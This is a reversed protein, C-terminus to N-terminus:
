AILAAAGYNWGIGFAALVVLNGEQIRKEAIANSLALQVAPAGTNGENQLCYYVKGPPIGSLAAGKEIIRVGAQHPIFLDVDGPKLGTKKFLGAVAKQFALPAFEAVKKRDIFLETYNKFGGVDYGSGDTMRYFGIMGKGPSATLITAAAGDGFTMSTNKDANGLFISNNSAGIILVNTKIKSKILGTAIQLASIFSVCSGGINICECNLDIGRQKLLYQIHASVEYYTKTLRNNEPLTPPVETYFIMLDISAPNLGSKRISEEGADAALGQLSEGEELYHRQRIGTLREIIGPRLDLQEELQCNTVIRGPKKSAAALISVETM